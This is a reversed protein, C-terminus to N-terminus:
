RVLEYPTLASGLILRRASLDKLRLGDRELGCAAEINAIRPRRMPLGADVM